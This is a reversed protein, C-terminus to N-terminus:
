VHQQLCAACPKYRPKRTYRRCLARTYATGRILARSRACSARQTATRLSRKAQRRNHFNRGKPVQLIHHHSGSNHMADRMADCRTARRVDCRADYMADRTVCRRAERRACRRCPARTYATGRLLATSRACSARQTATRLSRKAQRRNHFNRGTPVQLIHHHSGSNHRANRMTCRADGRVERRACRRCPARTYATGRILDTSRACSWVRM